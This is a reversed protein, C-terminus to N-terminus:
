LTGGMWEALSALFLLLMVGTALWLLIEIHSKNMDNWGKDDYSM